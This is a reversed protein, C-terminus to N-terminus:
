RQAAAVSHCIESVVQASADWDFRVFNIEPTTPGDMAARLGAIISDASSPDVYDAHDGCIWRFVPIDSIVLGGAGAAVSEVLPLGFGEARSVLVVARAGRYLERLEEDTVYGIDVTGAPWAIEETRFVASGGGVVALPFTAREQETLRGYAEALRPLNKRPDLSGVTLLYRGAVLGLRTVVGRLKVDAAEDGFVESPANPAIAIPGDYFAAVERAVPQSVAIIAAARRIQARLLPAHTWYYARSFWEPHTLVFLDHVILIQRRVWFPARATMSLVVRRRALLPLIVQVWIWVRFTSRVWFGTPTAKVFSPLQELRRAIETAYRQQGTIRQMHYSKNILV